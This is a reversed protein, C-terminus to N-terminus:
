KMLMQQTKNDIAAAQGAANSQEPRNFKLAASKKAASAASTVAPRRRNAKEIALAAKEQERQM